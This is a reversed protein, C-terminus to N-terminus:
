AAAKKQGEAEMADAHELKSQGSKRLQDVNWAREEPTLYERLKYQPEEGRKHPMPYRRQLKGSFSFEDQTYAESGDDSPDNRKRLFARAMDKLHEVSAYQIHPDIKKKARFHEYAKAALASPSIMIAGSLDDYLREMVEMIQQHQNM